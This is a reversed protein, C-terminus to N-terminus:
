MGYRNAQVTVTMINQMRMVSAISGTSRVMLPPLSTCSIRHNPQMTTPTKEAMM